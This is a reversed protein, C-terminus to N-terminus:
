FSITVAEEQTTVPPGLKGDLCARLSDTERWGCQGDAQRECVAEKYCAYEERYMCDTAIDKDACVQSSCGTPRCVSDSAEPEPAVGDESTSDPHVSSESPINQTAKEEDTGPWRSFALTVGGVALAVVCVTLVVWWWSSSSKNPMM